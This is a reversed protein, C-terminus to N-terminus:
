IRREGQWATEESHALGLHNMVRYIFHDVMEVINAPRHYFAPMAPVIMAGAQRLRLMNELHITSLPTERPVIVLRRGEKLCVDAARHLLNRCSGSALVGLTSASCPIIVMADVPYSGSAITAGIDGPHFVITKNSPRGIMGAVLEETDSAATIDLEDSIVRRGPGSIVLNIQRVEPSDELQMLLRQAYIAGSAGSIGVTITKVRPITAVPLLSLLSTIPTPTGLFAKHRV